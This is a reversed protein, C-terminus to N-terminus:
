CIAQGEISQILDPDLVCVAQSAGPAARGNLSISRRWVALRKIKSIVNTPLKFRKIELLSQTNTFRRLADYVACVQSGEGDSSQYTDQLPNGPSHCRFLAGWVPITVGEVPQDPVEGFHYAGQRRSTAKFTDGHRVIGYVDEAAALPALVLVFPLHEVGQVARFFGWDLRSEDWTRWGTKSYLTLGEVEEPRKYGPTRIEGADACYRSSDDRCGDYLWLDDVKQCVDWKSKGPYEWTGKPHPCLERAWVADIGSGGVVQDPAAYAITMTSGYYKNAVNEYATTFVTDQPDISGANWDVGDADGIESDGLELFQAQWIQEKTRFSFLIDLLGAAACTAEEEAMGTPADQIRTRLDAPVRSWLHSSTLKERTLSRVRDFFMDRFENSEDEWFFTSATVWTPSLIDVIAEGEHGQLLAKYAAFAPSGTYAFPDGLMAALAQEFSLGNGQWVGNGVYQLVNHRPFSM